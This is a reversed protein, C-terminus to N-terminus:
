HTKHFKKRNKIKGGIQECFILSECGINFFFLEIKMTEGGRLWSFLHSVKGWKVRCTRSNTNWPMFISFHPTPFCQSPTVTTFFFTFATIHWFPPVRGKVYLPLVNFPRGVNLTLFTSWVKKVTSAFNRIKLDWITITCLDFTETAQSPALKGLAQSAAAALMWPAQSTALKGGWILAGGM